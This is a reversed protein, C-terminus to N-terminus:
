RMRLSKSRYNFRDDIYLKQCLFGHLLFVDEKPAFCPGDYKMGRYNVNKWVRIRYASLVQILYLPIKELKTNSQLM